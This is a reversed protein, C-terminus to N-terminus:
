FEFEQKVKDREFYACRGHTKGERQSEHELNDVLSGVIGM